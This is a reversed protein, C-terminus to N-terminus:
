AGPRDAARRGAGTRGQHRGAAPARHHGRVDMQFTCPATSPRAPRRPPQGPPGSAPYRRQGAGHNEAREEISEFRPLSTGYEQAMYEDFDAHGLPIWDKHDWAAILDPKIERWAFDLTTKVRDVRARAEAETAQGEEVLEGTVVDDDDPQTALEKEDTM